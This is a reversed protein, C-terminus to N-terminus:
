AIVSQELLPQTLAIAAVNGKRKYLELARAILRAADHPRKQARETEALALLTEAHQNLADTGEALAVAERALRKAETVDGRFALVRALAPRWSFESAVDASTSHAASLRAWEEAEDWRGQALLVHALESARTSLHGWDGMQTLVDCTERLLAEATVADGALQEIEAALPAYSTAIRANQGLQEYTNRAEEALARGQDFREAQAQLAGMLALVNARGSLDIDDSGLLDECRRLAEPVPTPGHYLAAALEGFCSSPSWGSRRYHLIAREASEQWLANRCHLGGHVYGVVLWTRGLSRDDGLAEFLPVAENALQLLEEAHGEPRAFLRVNTLEIQARLEVRHDRASVSAEVAESLTEEAQALDGGTRHAIGLECLLERRGPDEAPLLATARGLLNLTAAVDARKWARIGANGLREGAATALRRARPDAPALERRYRAAQEWHYGVLEDPAEGDRDLRDGAQEHLGARREKTIAAYAVDRVLVHHFRYDAEASEVLGRGVLEALARADDTASGLSAVAAPSFARGIVSAREILDREVASLRDLRHALLAEVTPPIQDLNGGEAAFALLQEAYLPNGEAIAAVRERVVDPVEGATPLRAVLERTEDQPLPRLELREGPAPAVAWSPRREVLDPRALSVLLIPESTSWRALYEVLDLLAPEAWHLDELVVVLPRRRAAAELFRRVSWHAEGASAGGGAILETVRRAVLDADDEGRVVAAIAELTRGGAAASVIEALPLYTAGEGYSVCHGVLVTATSELRAAL